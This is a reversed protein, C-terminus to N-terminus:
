PKSLQSPRRGSELLRSPDPAGTLDDLNLRVQGGADSFVASKQARRHRFLLFGFLGGIGLCALLSLGSSKLVTVLVGASTQAFYIQLRDYLHPDDGLWQVEKQYKVEDILQNASSEDSANFVFVSYNGVRRYGTPVPQSQNKLEQIRATILQDAEVSFHANAFEVIVLQAQGYSGAVAETGGEFSITDLIPQNAVANKLDGPTVVYSYQAVNPWNPLHQVLIPTEAASGPAAQVENGAAPQGFACVPALLSIALVASLILLRV